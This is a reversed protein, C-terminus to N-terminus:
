GMTIKLYPFTPQTLSPNILLNASFNNITLKHIKAQSKIKPKIDFDFGLKEDAYFEFYINVEGVPEGQRM